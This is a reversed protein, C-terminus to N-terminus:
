KDRINTGCSELMKKACVQNAVTVDMGNEALLVESVQNM